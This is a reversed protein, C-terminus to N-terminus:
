MSPLRRCDGDMSVFVEIYNGLDSNHLWWFHWGPIKTAPAKTSDGFLTFQARYLWFQSTDIKEAAIFAEAKKLADQLSLQPRFPIIPMM